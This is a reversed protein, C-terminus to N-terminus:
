VESIKDFVEQLIRVMEDFSIKKIGDLEAMYRIGENFMYAGAKEGATGKGIELKKDSAYLCISKAVAPPFVQLMEEPWPTKGMSARFLIGFEPSDELEKAKESMPMVEETRVLAVLDKQASSEDVGLNLASPFNNSLVSYVAHRPSSHEVNVVRVWDGPNDEKPAGESFPELEFRNEPGRKSM